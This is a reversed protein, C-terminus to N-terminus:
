LCNQRGGPFWALLHELTMFPHALLKGECRVCIGIDKSALCSTICARNWHIWCGHLSCKQFGRRSRRCSQMCYQLCKTRSPSDPMCAVKETARSGHLCNIKPGLFWAHLVARLLKQLARRTTAQLELRWSYKAITCHFPCM